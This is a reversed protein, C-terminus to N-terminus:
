VYIHHMQGFHELIMHEIDLVKFPKSVFGTMGTQKARELSENTIDATVAMVAPTEGQDRALQLIKTTAEYGDMNPMWLDMLVSDIRKGPPRQLSGQYKKVAEVGDFALIINEERYGLKKLYGVLINRNISNDEAILFTLPVVKALDRNFCPRKPVKALVPTAQYTRRPQARVPTSVSASLLGNDARKIARVPSSHRSQSPTGLFPSQDRNLDSPTALPLRILFESGKTPGETASHELTMDGGLHKRIQAKANFLSLGLGDRARSISADEQFHPKFLQAKSELTMGCGTDMIRIELLQPRNSLRLTIKIKGSETFKVANDIVKQLCFRLHHEETVIGEPVAADIDLEFDLDRVEGRPGSATVRVVMGHQTKTTTQRVPHANRVADSVLSQMFERTSIHRHTPSLISEFDTTTTITTSRSPTVSRRSEPRGPSASDDNRVDGNDEDISATSPSESSFLPLQGTARTAAISFRKLSPGPHFDVDEDRPHKRRSSSVSITSSESFIIPQEITERAPEDDTGLPTDPMEMNLDYAHVVNDAAEVARKSSEQVMEINSKLEKFVSKVVESKQSGIADLVTSHMIDLMGVVGQMPTRLEHSLSRAYPKLSQSATIAELPIIKTVAASDSIPPKAFGRGDLIRQLIMDEVAHLLMEIYTWSLKRQAAGETSWIMGFHAFCKGESLLPLGIFAESQEWPLTNPNNPVFDRMREPIIFVKDHKMHACPSGYAHYRYDRYLKNVDRGNNLYFAVGMLCSGAEGIPPMEVASDQDDILMRKAVFGCQAGIIDCLGEMALSWFDHTSADRLKTKLQVLREAANSEATVFYQRMAKEFGADGNHAVLEQEFDPLCLSARGLLPEEPSDEERSGSGM